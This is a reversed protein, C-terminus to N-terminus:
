RRERQRRRRQPGMRTPAYEVGIARLCHRKPKLTAASLHYSRCGLSDEHLENEASYVGTYPIERCQKICDDREAFLLFQEQCTEVIIDYYMECANGCTGNGIPGASQYDDSVPVPPPAAAVPPPSPEIKPPAFELRPIAITREGPGQPEPLEGGM